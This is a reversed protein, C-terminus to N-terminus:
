IIFKTHLMFKNFYFDKCALKALLGLMYNITTCANKTFDQLNM